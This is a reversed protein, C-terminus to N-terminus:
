FNFQQNSIASYKLLLRILVQLSKHTRSPRFDLDLIVCKSLFPVTTLQRLACLITSTTTILGIKQNCGSRKGLWHVAGCGRVYLPENPRLVHDGRHKARCCHQGCPHVLLYSRIRFQELQLWGRYTDSDNILCIFCWCVSSTLINQTHLM